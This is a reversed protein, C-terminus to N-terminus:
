FGMYVIRIKYYALLARKLGVNGSPTLHGVVAEGWERPAKATHRGAALHASAGERRKDSAVGRAFTFRWANGRAAGLIVV